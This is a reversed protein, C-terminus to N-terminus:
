LDFIYFFYIFLQLFLSEGHTDRTFNLVSDGLFMVYVHPFVFKSKIDM